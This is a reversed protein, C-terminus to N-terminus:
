GRAPDGAGEAVGAGGGNEAWGTERLFLARLEDAIHQAHRAGGGKEFRVPPLFRITSRSTRWLSAWAPDVQPAGDIVVPLATAGTRSIFLGVGPLFPGIRRPPRGIRGEPFVGIVGGNKLREVAERVGLTDGSKRDIKIVRGLAWLPELGPKAMDEAMIWEIPFPCAAQILVPDVGATHNAVIILPGARASRPIHEAGDVRLRHMVRSYVQMVRLVIALEGDDGLPARAIWNAMAAFALAGVLGVSLWVWEM